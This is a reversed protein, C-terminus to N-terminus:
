AFEKELEIRSDIYCEFKEIVGKDNYHNYDNILDKHIDYLEDITKKNLENQKMVFGNKFTIKM